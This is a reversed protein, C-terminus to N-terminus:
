YNVAFIALGSTSCLCYKCYAHAFSKTSFKHSERAANRILFTVFTAAVLILAFSVAWREYPHIAAIFKSMSVTENDIIVSKPLWGKLVGTAFWTSAIGACLAIARDIVNGHLPWLAIFTLMIILCLILTIKATAIPLIAAIALLVVVFIQSVFMALANMSPIRTHKQVNVCSNDNKQMKDNCIRTENSM